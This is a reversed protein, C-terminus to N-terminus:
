EKVEINIIIESNNDYQRFTSIEVQRTRGEDQSEKLFDLDKKLIWVKM